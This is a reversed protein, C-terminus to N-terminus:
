TRGDSSTYMKVYVSLMISLLAEPGLYRPELRPEAEKWNHSVLCIIESNQTEDKFPSYM